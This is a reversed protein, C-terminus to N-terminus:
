VTEPGARGIVVLSCPLTAATDELATSAPALAFPVEQLPSEPPFQTSATKATPRLPGLAWLGVGGLLLTCIASVVIPPWIMGRRDRRGAGQLEFAGAATGAGSTQPGGGAVAQRPGVVVTHDAQSAIKRDRRLSPDARQFTERLADAFEAASRYRDEPRKSLVKALVAYIGPSVAALLDRPLAPPANIIKHMISLTSGEFPRRGLLLQYLVVGASYIDTRPDVREGLVQEPSMYAPTGLVSGLRTMDSTEVHASGFDTIKVRGDDILIINAPKVDRHVVGREHSHQLGLLLGDMIASTETVSPREAKGLRVELSQGEVLEMVIYASSETEGYDYIAVINPHYLTAAAQAERLFRSRQERSGTGTETLPLLKIAVRRALIPDWGDYVVGAAGRGIPIRLQYKGVSGNEM